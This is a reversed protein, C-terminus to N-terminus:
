ELFAAHLSARGFERDRFNGSGCSQIGSLVIPLVLQIIGDLQRGRL